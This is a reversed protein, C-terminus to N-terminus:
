RSVLKLGLATKDARGTLSRWGVTPLAGGGIEEVQRETSGSMQECRKDRQVM